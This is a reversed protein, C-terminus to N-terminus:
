GSESLELSTAVTTVAAAATSAITPVTTSYAGFIFVM